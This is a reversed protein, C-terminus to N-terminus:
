KCAEESIGEKRGIFIKNGTEFCREPEAKILYGGSDLSLSHKYGPIQNKIISRSLYPVSSSFLDDESSPYRGKNDAAYTEIAMTVAKVQERAAAENAAVRARIFNPIAIAALLGIIFIGIFIGAVILGILVGTKLNGKSFALYGLAAIGVIPLLVLIGVWGPYDLEAAIKYWLYGMFVAVIISGLVPIIAALFILLWLYRLGAIKCMLFLNAIPIWALWAPEQNTKKAIFQLCLSYYSYSIAAVILVIFFIIGIAALPVDNRARPKDQPLPKTVQENENSAPAPQAVVKPAASEPKQSPLTDQPQPNEQVTAPPEVANIAPTTVKEPDAIKNVVAPTTEGAPQGNIAEIDSLFYPVEVGFLDLIVVEKDQRLIKGEVEKGSKLKITDAFANVLLFLSIVTLSFFIKKM